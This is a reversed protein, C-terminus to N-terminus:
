SGRPRKKSGGPNDQPSGQSAPRKAGRGSGRGVTRGRGGRGQGGRGRASAPLEPTLFRVSSTSRSPEPHQVAGPSPEDLPPTESRPVGSGSAAGADEVRYSRMRSILSRMNAVYSPPAGYVGIKDMIEELADIFQSQDALMDLSSYVFGTDQDGILRAYLDRQGVVSKLIVVLSRAASSRAWWSLPSSGRSVLKEIRRVSHHIQRCAWDVSRPGEVRRERREAVTPDREPDLSADLQQIVRAVRYQISRFPDVAPDSPSLEARVWEALSHSALILSFLTGGLDGRRILIDPNYSQELDPRYDDLEYPQVGAVAAVMERAERVRTPNPPTIDSDPESTDCRLDDALIDIGIQSIQDFPDGLEEPYGFETLSLESDPDHDFLAQKSIKDFLWILHKCPSAHGYRADPCECKPTAFRESDRAGIRVSCPVVEHMQFAYFFGAGESDEERVGCLELSIQPPERPSIQNFLGKATQRAEPSLRSVNYKFGTLSSVVNTGEDDAEEEEVEWDSADSANESDPMSATTRPSPMQGKNPSVSSNCELSLRSLRTTPSLSM